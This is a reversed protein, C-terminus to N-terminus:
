PLGIHGDVLNYTLSRKLGTGSTEGSAHITFYLLGDKLDWSTFEIGTHYLDGSLGGPQHSLFSFGLEGIQEERPRVHHDPEIKYLYSVNDGSGSKQIRLIWRDDPSIYFLAPWFIGHELVTKKRDKFFYVTETWDNKYTQIIEFSRKPSVTIEDDCFSRSFGAIFFLITLFLCTCCGGVYSFRRM